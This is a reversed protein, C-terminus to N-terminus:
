FNPSFTKIFQEKKRRSFSIEKDNPLKLAYVNESQVIVAYALNVLHSRNTRFFNFSAFRTELKGLTTGVIVLRGDALHLRTYNIDSELFIIESPFFKMRGGVHISSTTKM